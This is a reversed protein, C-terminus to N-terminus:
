GPPGIRVPPSLAQIMQFANASRPRPESAVTMPLDGPATSDAGVAETDGALTQLAVLSGLGAKYMELM